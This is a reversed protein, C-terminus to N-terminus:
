REVFPLPGHRRIDQNSMIYKKTGAPGPLVDVTDESFSTQTEVFVALAGTTANWVVSLYGDAQSLCDALYCVVILLSFKYELEPSFSLLINKM